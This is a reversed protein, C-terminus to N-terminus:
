NVGLDNAVGGDGLGCLGLGYGPEDPYTPGLVIIVVVFFVLPPLAVYLEVGGCINSQLDCLLSVATLAVFESTIQM